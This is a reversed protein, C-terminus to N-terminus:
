AQSGLINQTSTFVLTLVLFHIKNPRFSKRVFHCRGNVRLLRSRKHPCCFKSAVKSLFTCSSNPFPTKNGPPFKLLNDISIKRFIANLSSLFKQPMSIRDFLPHKSPTAHCVSWKIKLSQQRLRRFRFGKESSTPGGGRAM